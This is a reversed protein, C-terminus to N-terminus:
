RGVRQRVCGVERRCYDLEFRPDTLPLPDTGPFQISLDGEWTFVSEPTRSFTGTGTFPPPPSITMHEPHPDTFTLGPADVTARRYIVFSERESAAEATEALFRVRNGGELMGPRYSRALFQAGLTRASFMSTWNYLRPGSQGPNASIRCSKWEEIEAPAEHTAVRTYEREGVFKVVGRVVGKRVTPRPGV